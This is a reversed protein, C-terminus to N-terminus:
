SGSDDNDPGSDDSSEEDGHFDPDLYDEDGNCGRRVVVDNQEPKGPTVVRLEYGVGEQNDELECPDEEGVVVRGIATFYADLDERLSYADAGELGPVVIQAPLKGPFGMNYKWIKTFTQIMERAECYDLVVHDRLEAQENRAGIASVLSRRVLDCERPSMGTFDYVIVNTFLM